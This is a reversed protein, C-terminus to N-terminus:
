HDENAEINHEIVKKLCADCWGTKTTAQSTFGCNKCTIMFPNVKKDPKKPKNKSLERLEM